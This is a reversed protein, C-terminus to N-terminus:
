AENRTNMADTRPHPRPPSFLMVGVAAEDGPNWSSHPVGGPILFVEGAEVTHEEGDIAITYAGQVPCVVEEAEHSHVPVPECGPETRFYQVSMQEGAILQASYRGRGMEEIERDDPSVASM